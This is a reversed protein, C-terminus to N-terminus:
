FRLQRELSSCAQKEARCVQHLSCSHPKHKLPSKGRDLLLSKQLQLYSANLKLVLPERTETRMTLCSPGESSCWHSLGLQWLLLTTSSNIFYRVNWHCVDHTNGDCHFLFILCSDEDQNQSVPAAGRSGTKEWCSLLRLVDTSPTSLVWHPFTPYLLAKEYLLCVFRESPESCSVRHAGVDEVGVTPEPHIVCNYLNRLNRRATGQRRVGQTHIPCSCHAM